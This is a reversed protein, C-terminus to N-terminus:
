HEDVKAIEKELEDAKQTAMDLAASLMPSPSNADIQVAFVVYLQAKDGKRDVSWLRWAGLKYTDNAKLLRQALAADIPDDVTLAPSWIERIEAKDFTETNSNVIVVQTRKDDSVEFILKYDQDATLSYEYGLAKLATAVRPDAAPAAPASTGPAAPTENDGALLPLATFVAAILILTGKM